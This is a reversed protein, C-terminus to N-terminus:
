RPQLMLIEVRRNTRRAEETTGEVAPRFQGYGAVSVREEAVGGNKMLYDAVVMAREVSLRLNSGWSSREIPQDDTHGEVRVRHGQLQGALESLTRRGQETLTNQGSAFLVGGAVRFAYGEPTSVLSVDANGTGNGPYRKMLDEIRAKQEAIWNADAVRSNLGSNERRLRENEASLQRQAESMGAIQARLAENAGVVQRHAEPSVCATAGILLAVLIWTHKM